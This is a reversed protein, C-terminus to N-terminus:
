KLMDARSEEVMVKKLAMVAKQINEDILYSLAMADAEVADAIGARTKIM